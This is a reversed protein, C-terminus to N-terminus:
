ESIGDAMRAPAAPKRANGHIEHFAASAPRVSIVGLLLWFGPDVAIIYATASVIIMGVLYPVLIIYVPLFRAAPVARCIVALIGTWYASALPLGYQAITNLPSVHVFHLIEGENPGPVSITAHWGYGLGVLLRDWGHSMFTEYFTLLEIARGGIASRAEDSSLDSLDASFIQGFKQFIGALLQDAGLLPLLVIAVAVTAAILLFQRAAQGIGGAQSRLAVLVGIAGVLGLIEGRKGTLLVMVSSLAAWGWRRDAIFVVSALVLISASMGLYIDAVFTWYVFTLIIPVHAITVVYSLVRLAPLIENPHSWQFHRGVLYLLLAFTAQFAHSVFYSNLGNHLVGVFTGFIALAVLVLAFGDPRRTRRSLLTVLSVLVFLPLVIRQYGLSIPGEDGYRLRMLSAFAGFPYIVLLLIMLARGYVDVRATM